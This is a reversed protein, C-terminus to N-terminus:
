VYAVAVAGGVMAQVSRGAPWVAGSGAMPSVTSRGSTTPRPLGVRLGRVGATGDDPARGPGVVPASPRRRAGPRGRGGGPPPGHAEGPSWGRRTPRPRTRGSARRRG